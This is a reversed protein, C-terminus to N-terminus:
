HLREESHSLELFSTGQSPKVTNRPSSKMSNSRSITPSKQLEVRPSEPKLLYESEKHNAQLQSILTDEQKVQLELKNEAIFKTVKHLFLEEDSCGGLPKGTFLDRKPVPSLRIEEPRAYERSTNRQSSTVPPGTSSVQDVSPM